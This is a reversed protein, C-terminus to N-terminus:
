RQSRMVRRHVWSTGAVGGKLSDCRCVATGGYGGAAAVQPLAYTSSMNVSATCRVDSTVWELTWWVAGAELGRCQSDCHVALAAQECLQQRGAACLATTAANHCHCACSPRQWRCYCYCYCLCLCCCTTALHCQGDGSWAGDHCAPVFVLLRWGSSCPPLSGLGQAGPGAMSHSGGRAAAVGM